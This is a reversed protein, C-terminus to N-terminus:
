EDVQKGGYLERKKFPVLALMVAHAYYAARDVVGDTLIGIAGDQQKSNSRGFVIDDAHGLEVGELVLRRIEPPLQFTATRAEGHAGAGLDRGLVVVWAFAIMQEGDDAIGGEIGVWFDAAPFLARANRARTRAGQLTEADTGPQDSVGSPVSVGTFGADGGIKMARFGNQAAAIKVPNTSAVIIKM